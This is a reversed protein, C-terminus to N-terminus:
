AHQLGIDFITVHIPIFYNPLRARVTISYAPQLSSNISPIEVSTPRQLTTRRDDCSCHSAATTRMNKRRGTRADLVCYWSGEEMQLLIMLKMLLLTYYDNAVPMVYLFGVPYGVTSNTLSQCHGRFGDM